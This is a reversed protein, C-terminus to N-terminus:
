DLILVDVLVREMEDRRDMLVELVDPVDIRQPQRAVEQDEINHPCADADRVDLVKPEIFLLNSVVIM